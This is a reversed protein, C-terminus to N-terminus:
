GTVDGPASLLDESLIKGYSARIFAVATSILIVAISLLRLLWFSATHTISVM